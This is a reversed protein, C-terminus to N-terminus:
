LNYLCPMFIVQEEKRKEKIDAIYSKIFEAREEYFKRNDEAYSNNVFLYLVFIIFSLKM